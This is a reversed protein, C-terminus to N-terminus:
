PTALLYQTKAWDFDRQEPPLQEWYAIARSVIEDLRQWQQEGHPLTKTFRYELDDGFFVLHLEEQGALQALVNLQEEEGVNLFSEFRFPAIPNDFIIAELRVLPATPMEVLQWRFAAPKGRFGEIDRDPAHCLHLVGASSEMALCGYGYQEFVSRIEPTLENAPAFRSTWLCSEPDWRLRLRPAPPAELFPQLAQQLQGTLPIPFQQLYPLSDQEIVMRCALGRKGDNTMPILPCDGYTNAVSRLWLPDAPRPLDVMLLGVLQGPREPDPALGYGSHVAETGPHWLYYLSGRSLAERRPEMEGM